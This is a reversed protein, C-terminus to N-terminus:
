PFSITYNYFKVGDFKSVGDGNTGIWINSGNVTVSYIINSAIGSNGTNFIIWTTGDFKALGGGNTGIWANNSADFAISRVDNVPLQSNSMDFMTWNVGDYKGLGITQFGIWKNNTNDIAIANKFRLQITTYGTPMLHVTFGNQAIAPMFCALLIILTTIKKM